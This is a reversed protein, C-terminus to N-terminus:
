MTVNEYAAVIRVDAPKTIMFCAQGAMKSNRLVCPRGKQQRKAPVFLSCLRASGRKRLDWYRLKRVTFVAPNEESSSLRMLNDKMWLVADPEIRSEAWDLKARYRILYITLIISFLTVADFGGNIVFDDTLPPLVAM